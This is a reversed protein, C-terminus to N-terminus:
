TALLTDLQPDDARPALRSLLETLFPLQAAGSLDEPAREVRQLTSRLAAVSLRISSQVQNTDLAAVHARDFLQDLTNAHFTRLCVGLAWLPAAPRIWEAAALLTDVSWSSYGLHIPIGGKELMRLLAFAPRTDELGGDGGLHYTVHVRGPDFART